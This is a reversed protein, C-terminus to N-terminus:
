KSRGELGRLLASRVALWRQRLAELEPDLLKRGAISELGEERVHDFAAQTDSRIDERTPKSM